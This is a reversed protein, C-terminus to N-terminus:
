SSTTFTRELLIESSAAIMEASAINTAAHPPESLPPPLPLVAFGVFSCSAEAVL